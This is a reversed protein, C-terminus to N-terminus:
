IQHPRVLLAKLFAAAVPEDLNRTAFSIIGTLLTGELDTIVVRVPLPGQPLKAGMIYRAQLRIRVPNDTESVSFTQREVVPGKLNGFELTALDRGLFNIQAWPWVVGALIAAFIFLFGLARM